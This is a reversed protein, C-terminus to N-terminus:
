ICRAGVIRTNARARASGENAEVRAGDGKGRTALSGERARPALYFRAFRRVASIERVSFRAVDAGRSPFQALQTCNLSYSASFCAFGGAVGEGRGGPGTERRPDVEAHWTCPTYACVYVCARTCLIDGAFLDSGLGGGTDRVGDFIVPATVRPGNTTARAHISESPAARVRACV